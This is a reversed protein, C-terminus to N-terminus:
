ASWCRSSARVIGAHAVDLLGFDPGIFLATGSAYPAYEIQDVVVVWRRAGRDGGLLSGDPEVGRERDSRTSKGNEEGVLQDLTRAPSRSQGGIVAM